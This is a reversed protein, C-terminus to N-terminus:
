NRKRAQEQQMQESSHEQNDQEVRRMDSSGHGGSVGVTEGRGVEGGEMPGRGGGRCWSAVWGEGYGNNILTWEGPIGKAFGNVCFLLCIIVGCSIRFSKM